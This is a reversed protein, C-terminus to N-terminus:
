ESEVDEDEDERKIDIVGENKLAEAADEDHAAIINLLSKVEDESMADRTIIGSDDDHNAIIDLMSDLEEESMEDCAIRGRKVSNSPHLVCDDEDCDNCDPDGELGSAMAVVATIKKQTLELVSGLTPTDFATVSDGGCDIVYEDNVFALLDSFHSLLKNAEEVTKVDDLEDMLAMTKAAQLDLLPTTAEFKAGNTVSDKISKRKFGDLSPMPTASPQDALYAVKQSLTELSNAQEVIKSDPVIIDGNPSVIMGNVLKLDSKNYMKM